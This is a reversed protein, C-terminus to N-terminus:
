INKRQWANLPREKPHYMVTNPSRWQPEKSPAQPTNSMDQLPRRSSSAPPSSTIDNPLVVLNHLNSADSVNQQLAIDPAIFMNLATNHKCIAYKHFQPCTCWTPTVYYTSQMTKWAELSSRAAHATNKYEEVSVLRPGGHSTMYAVNSQGRSRQLAVLFPRASHAAASALEKLFTERREFYVPLQFQDSHTTMLQVTEVFLGCLMETCHRLSLHGSVKGMSQATKKMRGHWREIGNNDERPGVWADNCGGPARGANQQLEFFRAWVPFDSLESVALSWGHHFDDVSCHFFMSMLNHMDRAMEEDFVHTKIHKENAQAVHFFCVADQVDPYVNRMAMLYQTAHDRVVRTPAWGPLYKEVLTKFLFFIDTLFEQTEPAKKGPNTNDTTPACVACFIPVFSGMMEVGISVCHGNTPAVFYTADVYINGKDGHALNQILSAHVITVLSCDSIVHKEVVCGPFKKEIFTKPDHDFLNSTITNAYRRHRRVKGINTGGLSVHVEQTPDEYNEDEVKINSEETKIQQPKTYTSRITLIADTASKSELAIKKEATLLGHQGRAARSCHVTHFFTLPAGETAQSTTIIIGDDVTFSFLNFICRPEKCHHACRWRQYSGEKNKQGGANQLFSRKKMFSLLVDASSVKLRWTTSDTHERFGLEELLEIQRKKEDSANIAPLPENVDPMPAPVDDHAIQVPQSLPQM